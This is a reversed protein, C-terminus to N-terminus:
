ALLCLVLYACCVGLVCVCSANAFPWHSTLAKTQIPGTEVLTFHAALVQPTTDM